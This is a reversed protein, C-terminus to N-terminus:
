YRKMYRKGMEPIKVIIFTGDMTKTLKIYHYNELCELIGNIILRDIKTKEIIQKNTRLNENIILAFIRRLIEDFDKVFNKCYLLTGQYTFHINLFEGSFVITYDVYKLDNLM